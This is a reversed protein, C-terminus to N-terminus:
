GTPQAGDVVDIHAGSSATTPTAAGLGASKAGGTFRSYQWPGVAGLNAPNGSWEARMRVREGLWHDGVLRVYQRSHINLHGCKTTWGTTWRGNVPYQGRFYVCSGPARPAVTTTLVPDDSLHYLHYIGSRGYYGRLLNTVRAHVARVLHARAPTSQSDGAFSVSFTTRKLVQVAATLNGAADVHARKVVHAAGGYTTASITVVRGTVTYGLHATVTATDAYNYVPKDTRVTLTTLHQPLVVHLEPEQGEFAGTVAFLQTNGFAVGAPQLWQASGTGLQYTRFQGKFGPKFIELNPSYQGRGVAVFGDSRYAVAGPGSGTVFGAQPTLDATSFRRAVTNSTAAAVLQTGTPSVALDRLNAGALRHNRVAATPASGGSVDYLYLDGADPGPEGVFLTGPLDAADAALIPAPGTYGADILNTHVDLTALDVEGLNGGNTSSCGYSFWLAQATLAVQSPCTSDGTGISSTALTATDIVEIADADHLAVYLTSADPSLVMGSAGALGSLVTVIQGQSNAVAVENSDGESIFVQAHTPDTVIDAFGDLTTVAPQTALAASPVSVVAVSLAAAALAVSFSKM